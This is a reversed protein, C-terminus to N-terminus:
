ESDILPFSSSSPHFPRREDIELNIQQRFQRQPASKRLFHGLLSDQPLAKCGTDPLMTTIVM